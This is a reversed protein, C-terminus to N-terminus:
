PAARWRCAFAENNRLLGAPFLPPLGTTANRYVISVGRKVGARRHRRCVARRAASSPTERAHSAARDLWELLCACLRDVDMPKAIFDNM